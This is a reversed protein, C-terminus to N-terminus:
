LACAQSTFLLIAIAILVAAIVTLMINTYFHLRRSM